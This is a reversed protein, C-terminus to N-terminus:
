PGPSPPPVRPDVTAEYGAALRILDPEAWARALLDIGVPLGAATAGAPVSMAPLGGVSAMSCNNGAQDVGLPAPEESVTPYALAVLDLADLVATVAATVAERAGEATRHAPTDITTVAAAATLRDRTEPLYLGTALVESLSTVPAGTWRRFFEETAPGWETLFGASAGSLLAPLGPIEVPVLVAGAAEMRALAADITTTVPGPAGFLSRVVGIRAGALGGPVVEALYSEPIHDTADGTVPDGPDFGTTADLLIALDAVTRAMPGVTDESPSLPIVGDRSSLGITPRLGWLSGYASPVRISGCTDTGLGAVAMGTTVAVATGASSGGTNRDRDYPNLTRGLISSNGHISRAWEQLNAKGIILAGAARLQAVQFADREPIWGGLAASGATTPLDFTAINDKIVIPIGHLPGRPGSEAREADLARAQALVNPAVTVMARLDGDLSAIRALTWAALAEATLSGADMAVQLELISAGEPDFPEPTPPLMTTTPPLSAPATPTESTSTTVVGSTPPPPAPETTSVAAPASCAALVVVLPILRHMRLRYFSHPGRDAPPGCETM